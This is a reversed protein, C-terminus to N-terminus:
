RQMVLMLFKNRAVSLGTRTSEERIAKCEHDRFLESVEQHRAPSM